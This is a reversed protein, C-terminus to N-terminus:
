RVDGKRNGESKGRNGEREERGERRDEETDGREVSESSIKKGKGSKEGVIEELLKKTNKELEALKKMREANTPRGRSGQNQM